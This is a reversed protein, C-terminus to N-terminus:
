GNTGEPESEPGFESRTSRSGGQGGFFVATLVVLAFGIAVQWVTKLSDTYVRVVEAKLDTSLQQVGSMSAFGYGNGNALEKYVQSNSVRYLFNNIQGNFILSPIAVGWIAGFNYSFIYIDTVEATNEASVAVQIAPLNTMSLLGLGIATFIQLFVWVAVSTHPGLLTFLGIGLAALAFGISQQSKYNRTKNLTSAGIFSTLVYSVSSPLQNLGSTLPSAGTIAQFYVPLMWIVWNYLLGSTFAKLLRTASIRNAFVYSPIMSNKCFKTFEYVCFAAWVVVGIVLPLIVYASKWPFAVGGFVLGLVFSTTSGQFIIAGTFDLRRLTTFGSTEPKHKMDVLLLTFLLTLGGAILDLYFCWRWNVRAIAGGIIPSISIGILSSSYIASM